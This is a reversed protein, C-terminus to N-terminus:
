RVDRLSEHVHRHEIFLAACLSVDLAIPQTTEGLARADTRGARIPALGSSDVRRHPQLAEAGGAALRHGGGLDRNAEEARHEVTPELRARAHQLAGAAAVCVAATALMGGLLWGRLRALRDPM